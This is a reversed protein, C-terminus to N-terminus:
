NNRPNYGEVASPKKPAVGGGLKQIKWQKYYDKISCNFFVKYKIIIVIESLRKKTEMFNNIIGVEPLFM